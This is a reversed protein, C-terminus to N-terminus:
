DAQLQLITAVYSNLFDDYVVGDVRMVSASPTFAFAAV